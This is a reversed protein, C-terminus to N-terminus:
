MQVCAPIIPRISALDELIVASMGTILHNNIHCHFMWGGANDATYRLVANGGPAIAYGDRYPPNNLNMTSSDNALAAGVSSYGFMGYNSGSVVWFSHGGDGMKIGTDVATPQSVDDVWLLPTMLEMESSMLAGLLATLTFHITHQAPGQPPKLGEDYPAASTDNFAQMSEPDYLNGGIDQYVEPTVSYEQPPTATPANYWLWAIQETVQAVESCAFRISFDGNDRGTPVAITYRNRPQIFAGEVQVVWIDHGDISLYLAFAGAMNIVNFMMWDSGDCLIDRAVNNIGSYGNIASPFSSQVGTANHFIELRGAGTAAITENVPCTVRGRGNILFRLTCAPVLGYKIEKYNTADFTLQTWDMVYLPTPNSELERLIATADGRSGDQYFTRMHAHYFSEGPFIPKQSVGLAGDMLPTGLQHIGHFHITM